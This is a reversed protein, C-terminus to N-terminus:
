VPEPIVLTLDPLDTRLLDADERTFVGTVPGHTGAGPRAVLPCFTDHCTLCCYVRLIKFTLHLHLSIFKTM